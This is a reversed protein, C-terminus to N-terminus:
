PAHKPLRWAEVFVWLLFAGITGREFLGGYNWHLAIGAAALGGSAFVVVLSVFSYVAAARGGPTRWEARGRLFIAAMTMLSMAAALLVHVLGAPTMATGPADQRFYFMALGLIGIATLLLASAGGRLPANVRGSRWALGFLCLLVDYLAFLINVPLAQPAGSSALLSIPDKLHSYGPWLAGGLVVIAAYLVPASMGLVAARKRLDM